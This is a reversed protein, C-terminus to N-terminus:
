KKIKFFDINKINEPYPIYLENENFDQNFARKYAGNSFEFYMKYSSLWDIYKENIEGTLVLNGAFFNSFDVSTKKDFTWHKGINDGYKIQHVNDVSITRYVRINKPFSNFLNIVSKVNEVGEKKTKYYYTDGDTEIKYGPYLDKFNVNMKFVPANYILHYIHEFTEEITLLKNSNKSENFNNYKKIYM